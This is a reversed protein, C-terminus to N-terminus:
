KNIITYLTYICLNREYSTMCIMIYPAACKNRWRKNYLVAYIVYADAM